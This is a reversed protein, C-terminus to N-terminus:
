EIVISITVLRYESVYEVDINSIKYTKDALRKRYYQVVEKVFHKNHPIHYSFSESIVSRHSVAGDIAEEISQDIQTRVDRNLSEEIKSSRSVRSQEFSNANSEASIAVSECASMLLLSAISLMTFSKLKM